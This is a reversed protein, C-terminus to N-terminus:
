SPSTPNHRTRKLWRGREGEPFRAAASQAADFIVRGGLITAFNMLVISVLGCVQTIGFQNSALICKIIHMDYKSVEEGM